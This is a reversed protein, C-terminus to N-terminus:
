RLPVAGTRLPLMEVPEDDASAARAVLALLSLALTVWGMAGRDVQLHM